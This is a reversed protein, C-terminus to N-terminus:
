NLTNKLIAGDKYWLTGDNIRLAGFGNRARFKFGVKWCAIGGVKAAQPPHVTIDSVSEPAHAVKKIASELAYVLVTEDPPTGPSAARAILAAEKQRKKEARWAAVARVQKTRIPEAQEAPMALVHKNALQFDKSAIAVNAAAIHQEPTLAQWAALEEAKKQNAVAQLCQAEM